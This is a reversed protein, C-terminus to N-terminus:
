TCLIVLMLVSFWGIQGPWKDYLGLIFVLRLHALRNEQTLEERIFLGKFKLLFGLTERLYMGSRALAGDKARKILVTYCVNM